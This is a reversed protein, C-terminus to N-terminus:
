RLAVQAPAHCRTCRDRDRIGVARMGDHCSGCYEMKKM